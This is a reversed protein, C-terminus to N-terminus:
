LHALKLTRLIYRCIEHTNNIDLRTIPLEVTSHRDTALAVISNDHPYMLPKNLKMRHLEIKPYPIGKYGEILICDLMDHSLKHIVDRLPDELIDANKNNLKYENILAWRHPGSILTQVAGAKRLRYSDKGPKDIEFDHHTHKVVAVRIREDRLQKIIRELLSTKGTGSYAIFGICPTGTGFYDFNPM